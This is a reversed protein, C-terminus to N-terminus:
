RRPTTPPRLRPRPRKGAEADIIEKTWVPLDARRLDDARDVLQSVVTMPDAVIASTRRSPELRGQGRRRRGPDGHGGPRDQEGYSTRFDWDVGLALVVDAEAMAKSRM